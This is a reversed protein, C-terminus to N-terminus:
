YSFNALQSSVHIPAGPITKQEPGKGIEPNEPRITQGKSCFRFLIDKIIIYFIWLVGSASYVSLMFIRNPMWGIHDMTKWVYYGIVGSCRFIELYPAFWRKDFFGGFVQMTCVFFCIKLGFDTWTLELRDYEFHMFICLLLVFHISCYVKKWIELPPNYKIVPKEVEPVGTRSDVLSWWHFFMLTEVGPFYGPPYFVAKLKEKVTKFIPEGKEDKMRWKDFLLEKLTHFQLWVQNFSNENHVLGYIPPDEELEPHFTFFLKDWIIFVGGYNRDICYPNRGHHVRHYSPTNFVIGLPYLDGM